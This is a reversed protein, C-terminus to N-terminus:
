ATEGAAKLATATDVILQQLSSMDVDQAGYIYEIAKVAPDTARTAALAPKPLALLSTTRNFETLAKPLACAHSLAEQLKALLSKQRRAAANLLSASSKTAISTKMHFEPVAVLTFRDGGTVSEDVCEHVIPGQASVDLCYNGLSALKMQGASTMTWSSRGDDADAATTCTELALKGGKSM